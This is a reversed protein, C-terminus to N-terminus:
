LRTVAYIAIGVVVVVAIIGTITVAVLPWLSTTVLLSGM